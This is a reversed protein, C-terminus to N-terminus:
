QSKFNFIQNITKVPRVNSIVTFTYFYQTVVLAHTLVNRPCFIEINDNQLSKGNFVPCIQFFEIVASWDASRIYYIKSFHTRFRDYTVVRGYAAATGPLLRPVSTKRKTSMRCKVMLPANIVLIVYEVTSTIVLRIREM